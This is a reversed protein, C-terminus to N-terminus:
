ADPNGEILSLRFTSGELPIAPANCSPCNQWDTGRYMVPATHRGEGEWTCQTCKWNDFRHSFMHSEHATVANRYRKLTAKAKDGLNWYPTEKRGEWSAAKDRIEQLGKILIMNTRDNM